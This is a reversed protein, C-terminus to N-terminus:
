RGHSVRDKLIQLIEDWMKGREIIFYELFIFKEAKKLERKLSEFKDEGLPYYEVETNDYIPFGGGDGNMYHVLRDMPAEERRIRELVKADQKYFPRTRDISDKLRKKFLVTDLQTNLFLYILGGFIPVLLIPIIWALKYSPNDQKNMVYFVILISLANSLWYVYSYSVQLVLFSVM